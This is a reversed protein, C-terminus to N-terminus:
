LRPRKPNEEWPQEGTGTPAGGEQAKRKRKEDYSSLARVLKELSQNLSQNAAALPSKVRWAEVRPINGVLIKAVQKPQVGSPDSSIIWDREAVSPPKAKFVELALQWIRDTKSWKEQAGVAPPEAPATDSTDTTPTNEV